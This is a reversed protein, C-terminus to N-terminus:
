AAMYQAKHTVYCKGLYCLIFRVLELPLSAKEGVMRTSFALWKQQNHAAPFRNAVVGRRIRWMEGARTAPPTLFSGNMIPENGVVNMRPMGVVNRERM